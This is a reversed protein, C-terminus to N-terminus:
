RKPPLALKAYDYIIGIIWGLIFAGITEFGSLPYGYTRAVVYVVTVLVLACFSGALMANPRALTNSLVESSKEIVPQHIVKSFTRQPGSMHTRVLKMTQAYSEKRQTKTIRKMSPATSDTAQRHENGAERSFLAEKSAEVRAREARETQQEPGKENSAELLKRTEVGREAAAKSVAETNREAGKFQEPSNM